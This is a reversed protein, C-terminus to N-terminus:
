ESSSLILIFIVFKIICCPLVLGAEDGPSYNTGAQLGARGLRGTSGPWGPSVSKVETGQGSAGCGAQIGLMAGVHGLVKWWSPLSQCSGSHGLSAVGPGGPELGRALLGLPGLFSASEM